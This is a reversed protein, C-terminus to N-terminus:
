ADAMQKVWAGVLKDSFSFGSLRWPYDLNLNQDEDSIIFNLSSTVIGISLFLVSMTLMSSGTLYTTWNSKESDGKAPVKSAIDRSIAQQLEIDGANQTTVAVTEEDNYVIGSTAGRQDKWEVYPVYGFTFIHGLGGNIKIWALTPLIYVAIASLLATCIDLLKFPNESVLAFGLTLLWVCISAIRITQSENLSEFDSPRFEKWLRLVYNKLFHFYLPYSLILMALIMASLTTTVWSAEFLSFFTGDFGTCIDYRSIHEGSVTLRFEGSELYQAEGDSKILPKMQQNATSLFGVLAYGITIVGAIGTGV